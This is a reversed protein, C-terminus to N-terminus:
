PGALVSLTKGVAVFANKGRQDGHGDRDGLGFNESDINGTGGLFAFHAQEEGGDGWPAPRTKRCDSARAM